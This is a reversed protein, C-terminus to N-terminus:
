CRECHVKNPYHSTQSSNFVQKNTRRGGSLAGDLNFTVELPLRTNSFPDKLKESLFISPFPNKNKSKTREAERSQLCTRILLLM